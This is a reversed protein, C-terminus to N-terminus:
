EVRRLCFCGSRSQPLVEFTDDLGTVGESGGLFLYGDAKLLDHVRGLITKRMPMDFYILLNRLFIVDMRPMAPWDRALNLEQFEVMRRVREHIQWEAGCKRFYKVLLTAPLGRNVEMQTYCGNRARELAARSIDTALLSISWGALSPFHQLITMAVSYPEQGASCAGCWINLSRTSARRVILEPLVVARLTEFPTVDRFFSTEGTVMAEVVKRQLDGSVDTRELLESLSPFGERSALVNLRSEVLYEKGPELVLASRDRVLRCVYDFECEKIAM